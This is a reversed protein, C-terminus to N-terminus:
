WIMETVIVLFNWIVVMWMMAPIIWFYWSTKFREFFLALIIIFILKAISAVVWGYNSVILNLERAGLFGVAIFTTAVDLINTLIWHKTILQWNKIKQFLNGIIDINNPTPDLDYM